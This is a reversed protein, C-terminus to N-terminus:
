KKFIGKKSQSQQYFRTLRLKIIQNEKKLAENEDKRNNNEINIRELEDRTKNLEIQIKDRDANLEKIKKSNDKNKLENNLEEKIKRNDNLAKDLQAQLTEYEDKKIFESIDIKEDNLREIKKNLDEIKEDSNQKEINLKENEDILEELKKSMEITATDGNSLTEIQSQLLKNKNETSSQITHSLNLKGSLETIQSELEKIKEDYEEAKDTEDLKKEQELTELKNRLEQNKQQEQQLILNINDVSQNKNEYESIERKLNSNDKRLVYNESQLHEIQSQYNGSDNNFNKLLLVSYLLAIMESMLSNSIVTSPKGLENKDKPNDKEIPDNPKYGAQLSDEFKRIAIDLGPDIGKISNNLRTLLNNYETDNTFVIKTSNESNLNKFQM